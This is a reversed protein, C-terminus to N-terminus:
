IEKTKEKLWQNEDSTLFPSLKNYVEKHYDNLWKRESVLLLDADICNLDIFVYSLNDFVMFQGCDNSIDEKICAVNEIRIGHKGTRYVGPEITTIMGAKLEVSNVVPAIRHPGEHVNLLYGIGHGTGSKYDIGEKWLPARCLADLGHGTAGELFRADLLNIHGKLCFTFDRKEEETIEGLAVTRTIDTTGEYYQGGSDLLYLGKDELLVEDDEKASYHMMAANPGYASITGFSPQIFGEQEKRFELLKEQASYETIKEEKVNKDLWHFFKTLAIADKIYANRQNKIETDNKIAKLDTTIDRQHIISVDDPIANYLWTNIRDKDLIIANDEEIKVLADYVKDYDCIRINDDELTQRVSDNIKDQDVFLKADNKGILAYSIVIPNCEVDSGRINFLWAIDDLSGILFYDAKKEKMKERVEKLKTATNKGSYKEGLLFAENKSLAPRDKWIEGILDYDDIDVDKDIGKLLKEISSQAFIKGNFGIKDGENMNDKLWEIYNPYGKINMKFLEFENDKIENEAQIFYRGDTWLNAKDKTIVVLGASGTFGSIFNRGKYHDAVYESQHPDATPEIYADIGRDDMLKRLQSLRENVMKGRWEELAM